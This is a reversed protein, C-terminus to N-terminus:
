RSRKLISFENGNYEMGLEDLFESAFESPIDTFYERLRLTRQYSEDSDYVPDVLEYFIQERLWEFREEASAYVGTPFAAFSLLLAKSVVRKWLTNFM